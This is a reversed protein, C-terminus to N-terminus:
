RPPLGRGFGRRLWRLAALVLAIAFMVFARFIFRTNYWTPEVDIVARAPNAPDVHAVVAKGAPFQRAHYEVVGRDADGYVPEGGSLIRSLLSTRAHAPDRRTAEDFSDGFSMRTGTYTHGAYDYQYAVSLYYITEGASDQRSRIESRIIRGPAAPWGRAELLKVLDSLGLLLFLLGLLTFTIAGWGVVRFRELWRRAANM